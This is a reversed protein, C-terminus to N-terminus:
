RSRGFTTAGPMPGPSTPFPRSGCAGRRARCRSRRSIASTTASMRRSRAREVGPPFFARLAAGGPTGEEVVGVAGLEWLRNTVAEATEAADTGLTVTLDWYTAAAPATPKPLM